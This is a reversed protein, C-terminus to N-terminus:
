NVNGQPDISVSSTGGRSLNIVAEGNPDFGPEWTISMSNGSPSFIVTLKPSTIQVGGSVKVYWHEGSKIADEGVPKYIPTMTWTSTLPDSANPVGVNHLFEYSNPYDPDSAPYFIVEYTVNEQRASTEARNLAEIIQSRAGKMNSSKLTEEFTLTGTAIIVAFIGVVVMLEVLTFGKEDWWRLRTREPFDVEM